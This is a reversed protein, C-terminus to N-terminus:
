PADPAASRSSPARPVFGFLVARPDDLASAFTCAGEGVRDRLRPYRRELDTLTALEVVRPRAVCVAGGESWAAEFPRDADECPFIGARDCFSLGRGTKTASTGDGGYDARVMRVCARHLERTAPDEPWYGFRACKGIAGATCALFVRGREDLFPLAWRNGEPDVHCLESEAGGDGLVVFRHLVYSLGNPPRARKVSDLRVRQGGVVLTAGVLDRSAMERGDETTFFLEGGRATLAQEPRREQCAMPMSLFALLAPLARRSM